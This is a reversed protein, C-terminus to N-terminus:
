VHESERMSTRNGLLKLRYSLSSSRLSTREACIAAAVTRRSRTPAYSASAEMAVLCSCLMKGRKSVCMVNHSSSHSNLNKLTKILGTHYSESRRPHKPNKFTYGTKSSKYTPSNPIITDTVRSLRATARRQPKKITTWLRTGHGRTQTM